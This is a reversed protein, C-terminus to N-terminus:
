SPFRGAYRGIWEAAAEQSSLQRGEEELAKARYQEVACVQEVMRARFADATDLFEVGVLFREDEPRCWVVRARAEFPPDVSPIRIRVIDGVLPCADYLFALGGSSVNVGLQSAPPGVGDHQVEIPVDLTHRIFRREAGLEAGAKPTFAKPM